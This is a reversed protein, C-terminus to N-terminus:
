NNVKIVRHYCFLMVLLYVLGSLIKTYAAGMAGFKPILIINIGLTAIGVIFSSNRLLKGKGHAGLFRNFFDAMGHLLIGFCVLYNLEIVPLFENGYFYKIFPPVV